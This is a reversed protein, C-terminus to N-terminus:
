HTAPPPPVPPFLRSLHFNRCATQLITPPLLIISLPNQRELLFHLIAPTTTSPLIKRLLLVLFSVQLSVQKSLPPVIAIQKMTLYRMTLIKSKWLRVVTTTFNSTGAAIVMFSVPQTRTKAKLGILM